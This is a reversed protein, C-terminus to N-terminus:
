CFHRPIPAMREALVVSNHYVIPNGFCTFLFANGCVFLTGVYLVFLTGVSLFLEWLCFAYGYGFANRCVYLMGVFLVFLTGVSLFRLWM